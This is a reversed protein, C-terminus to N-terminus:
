LIALKIQYDQIVSDRSISEAIPACKFTKSGVQVEVTENLLIDSPYLNYHTNPITVTMDQGSSALNLKKNHSFESISSSNYNSGEFTYSDTKIYGLLMSIEGLYNKYRIVCYQDNVPCVRNVSVRYVVDSDGNFTEDFTEDFVNIDFDKSVIFSDGVQQTDITNIGETIAVTGNISGSFPSFVEVFRENQLLNHTTNVYGRFPYSKGQIVRLQIIKNVTITSEQPGIAGTVTFRIMQLNNNMSWNVFNSIDLQLNNGRISNYTKSLGFNNSIMVRDIRQNVFELEAILKNHQMVIAPLTDNISNITIQVVSGIFTTYM